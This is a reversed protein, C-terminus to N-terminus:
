QPVNSHWLQCAYEIVPRIVTLYVKVPDNQSVGSQKLQYM